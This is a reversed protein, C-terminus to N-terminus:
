AERSALGAHVDSSGLSRTSGRFSWLMEPHRLWTGIWALSLLVCPGVAAPLEGMQLHSCIAGGLFASLFLLGFSRTRGYLFLFASALELAAVLFLKGDTFGALAMKHVVAPVAAFKLISSLGLASAALFILITGTISRGHSSRSRTTM